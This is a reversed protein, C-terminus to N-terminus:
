SSKWNNKLFGVLLQFLYCLVVREVGCELSWRCMENWAGGACKMGPEAQVNWLWTRVMDIARPQTYYNCLQTITLKKLHKTNLGPFHLFSRPSIHDQYVCERSFLSIRENYPSYKRMIDQGHDLRTGLLSAM